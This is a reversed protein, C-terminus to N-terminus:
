SNKMCTQIDSRTDPKLSYFAFLLFLDLAERRRVGEGGLRQLLFLLLGDHQTLPQQTKDVRRRRSLSMLAQMGREDNISERSRSAARRESLCEAFVCCGALGGVGSSSVLRLGSFLSDVVAHSGGVQFCAKTESDEELLVQLRQDTPPSIHKPASTERSFTLM